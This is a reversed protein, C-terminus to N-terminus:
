KFDIKLFEGDERPIYYDGSKTKLFLGFNNNYNSLSVTDTDDVSLLAIQIKETRILEEFEEKSLQTKEGNKFIWTNVHGEKLVFYLGDTTINDTGIVKYTMMKGSKVTLEEGLQQRKWRQM